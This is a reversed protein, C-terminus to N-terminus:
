RSAESTNRSCPLAVRVGHPAQDLTQFGMAGLFAAYALVLRRNGTIDFFRWARRWAAGRSASLKVRRRRCGLIASPMLGEPRWGM